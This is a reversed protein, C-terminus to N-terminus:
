RGTQHLLRRYSCETESVRETDRFGLSANSREQLQPSHAPVLDWSQETSRCPASIDLPWRCLMRDSSKRYRCRTPIASLYKPSLWSLICTKCGISLFHEKGPPSPEGALLTPATRSDQKSRVSIEPLCQGTRAIFLTNLHLALPSLQCCNGAPRCTPSSSLRGGPTGRGLSPPSDGCRSSTSFSSDWCCPSKGQIDPVFGAQKSEGLHPFPSGLAPTLIFVAACVPSSASSTKSRAQGSEPLAAADRCPAPLLQTGRTARLFFGLM